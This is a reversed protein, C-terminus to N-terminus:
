GLVSNRRISAEENDASDCADLAGRKRYKPALPCAGCYGTSPLRYALCCSAHLTLVRTGSHNSVPVQRHCLFLPNRRGDPWTPAELLQRRDEILTASLVPSASVLPLAQGFIGLLTRRANGRLIKSPVKSQEAIHAILPELHQWVLPGYRAATDAGPSATGIAEITFAAPSGHENLTLTMDRWSAPVSYRLLSSLAVIPPLLATLYRLMWDSAVAKRERAGNLTAAHDTLATDLHAPNAMWQAVTPQVRGANMLRLSEGYQAWDGRFFPRLLDLM